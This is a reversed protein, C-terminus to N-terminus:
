NKPSHPTFFVELILNLIGLIITILGILIAFYFNYKLDIDQYLSLLSMQTLVINMLSSILTTFIYTRQVGSPSGKIYRILLVISRILLFFSVSAITLAIILSYSSTQYGYLLRLNYFSYFVGTAMILLSSIIVIKKEELGFKTGLTILHKSFALCFTFLSSAILFLSRALIGLIFKVSSWIYSKIIMWSYKKFFPHKAIFQRYIKKM